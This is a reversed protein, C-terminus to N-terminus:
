SLNSDIIQAISQVLSKDTVVNNCKTAAEEVMNFHFINLEADPLASLESASINSKYVVGQRIEFQQETSANSYSIVIATETLQKAIM